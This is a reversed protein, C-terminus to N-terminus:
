HYCTSQNLFFIFFDRMSVFCFNPSHNLKTKNKKKYQSSFVFTKDILVWKEQFNRSHNLKLRSILM